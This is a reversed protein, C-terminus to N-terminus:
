APDNSRGGLPKMKEHIDSTMELFADHIIKRAADFSSMIDQINPHVIVADAVTMDLMVSPTDSNAGAQRLIGDGVQVSMRKSTGLIPILLNVSTSASGHAIGLGELAHPLDVKFKLIDRMFESQSLGSMHESRFGNIYRLSLGTFPQEKEQSTRSALLARIGNELTPKFESWSKYPQLANATFIGPGVQLLVGEQNPDRFRWVVQQWITPFGAPILKEVVTFSGIEPRRGFSLLFTDPDAAGFALQVQGLQPAQVGIPLWRLEAVIEILPADQFSINLNMENARATEM